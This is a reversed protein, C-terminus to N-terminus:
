GTDRCAASRAACASRRPRVRPVGAIENAGDHGGSRTRGFAARDCAHAPRGRKQYLLSRAHIAPALGAMVVSLGQRLWHRLIVRQMEPWVKLHGAGKREFM